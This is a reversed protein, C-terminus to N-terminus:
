ELILDDGGETILDDGGETLVYVTAAIVAVPTAEAVPYPVIVLINSPSAAFPRIIVGPDVSSYETGLTFTHDGASLVSSLGCGHLQYTNLATVGTLELEGAALLFFTDVAAETSIAWSTTTDVSHLFAWAFWVMVRTPRDLHITLTIDIRPTSNDYPTADANIASVPLGSLIVDRVVDVTGGMGQVAEVLAGLTVRNTVGAQVLATLDADDLPIADPLGSIPLDVGV